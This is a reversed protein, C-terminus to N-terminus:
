LGELFTKYLHCQVDIKEEPIVTVGTGGNAGLEGLDAGGNTGLRNWGPGQKPNKAFRAWADQMYKSLAIEQPTAGEAPYTGRVLPIQTGHYARGNPILETNPFSAKLYFRWTKYGTRHQTSWPSRPFM